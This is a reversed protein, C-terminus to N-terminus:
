WEAAWTLSWGNALAAAEIAAVQEATFQMQVVTSIQIARVGASGDYTSSKGGITPFAFFGDIINGNADFKAVTDPNLNHCYGFDVTYTAANTKNPVIIRPMNELSYCRLFASGLMGVTSGSCDFVDQVRRLKYCQSFISNTNQKASLNLEPSEEIQSGGFLNPANTVFDDFQKLLEVETVCLCPLLNSLGDEAWISVKGDLARCNNFSTNYTHVKADLKVLNRDDALTNTSNFLAYGDGAIWCYIKTTPEAPTQVGGDSEGWVIFWHLGSTTFSFTQNAALTRGDDTYLNSLAKLSVNKEIRVLAIIRNKAGVGHTTDAALIAKIDPWHSPPTWSSGSPISQIAAPMQAPTMPAVAGGKAIIADAIDHLHQETIIAKSM